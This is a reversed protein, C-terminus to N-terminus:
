LVAAIAREYNELVVDQIINRSERTIPNFLSHYKGDQGKESPYGVFLGNEGEIVKLGSLRLAENLVIHAYARIKNKSDKVPYVKADTVDINTKMM